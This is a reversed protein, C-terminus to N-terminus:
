PILDIYDLVTETNDEPQLELTITPAVPFGWYYYIFENQGEDLEIEDEFLVEDVSGGGPLGRGKIKMTQAKNTTVGIKMINFPLPARPGVKFFNPAVLGHSSGFRIRESIPAKALDTWQLLTLLWQVSYAIPLAAWALLDKTAITVKGGRPVRFDGYRTSVIGYGRQSVVSGLESKAILSGVRVGPIYADGSAYLLGSGARHYEEAMAEFVALDAAAQHMWPVVETGDSPVETAIQECAKRSDIVNRVWFLTKPKMLGTQLDVEPSKLTVGKFEVRIRPSYVRVM